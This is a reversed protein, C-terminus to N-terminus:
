HDSPVQMKLPAKQKRHHHFKREGQAVAPKMAIFNVNCKRIDM